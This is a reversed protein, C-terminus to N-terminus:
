GTHGNEIEVKASHNHKQMQCSEQILVTQLGASFSQIATKWNGCIDNELRYLKTM